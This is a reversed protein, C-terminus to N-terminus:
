RGGTVLAHARGLGLWVPQYKKSQPDPLCLMHSLFQNLSTLSNNLFGLIAVSSLEPNEVYFLL